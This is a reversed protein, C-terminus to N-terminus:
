WCFRKLSSHAINAKEMLGSTKGHFCFVRSSVSSFGQFGTLVKSFTQFVRLLGGSVEPFDRSFRFGGLFVIPFDRFGQFGRSFGECVVQFVRCFGAWSVRKAFLVVRPFM